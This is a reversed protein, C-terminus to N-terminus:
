SKRRSLWFAAVYCGLAVATLSRGDLNGPTLRVAKAQPDYHDGM